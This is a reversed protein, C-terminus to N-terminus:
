NGSQAKRLAEKVKDAGARHHVEVGREKALRHLEEASLADLEDSPPEVPTSSPVLSTSARMDRTLYTGRGLRQLIEADRRSMPQIRGTKHTFDVKM